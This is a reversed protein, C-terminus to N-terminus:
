LLKNNCKWQWQSETATYTESETIITLVVYLIM